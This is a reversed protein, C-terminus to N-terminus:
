IVSVELFRLVSDVKCKMKFRVVKGVNMTGVVCV